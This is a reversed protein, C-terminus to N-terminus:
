IIVTQPSHVSQVFVQPPPVMCLVFYQPVLLTVHPRISPAHLTFGHLPVNGDCNCAWSPSYSAINNLNMNTGQCFSLYLPSHTYTYTHVHTYAYPFTHTYIYVYLIILIHIIYIYIYIINHMYIYIYIYIHM